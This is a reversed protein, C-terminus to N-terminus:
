IGMMLDENYLMYHRLQMAICTTMNFIIIFVFPQM